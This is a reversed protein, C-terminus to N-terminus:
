KGIKVDMFVRTGMNPSSMSSVYTQTRSSSGSRIISAKADMLKQIKEAQAKEVSSDKNSIDVFHRTGGTLNPSSSM